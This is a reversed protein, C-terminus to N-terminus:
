NQILGKGAYIPGHYQPVYKYGLGYRYLYRRVEGKSLGLQCDWDWTGLWLFDGLWYM